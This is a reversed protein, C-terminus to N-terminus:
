GFRIYNQNGHKKMKANSQAGSRGFRLFSKQLLRKKTTYPSFYGRREKNKLLFIPYPYNQRGFRLFNNAPRKFRNAAESDLDMSMEMDSSPEESNLPQQDFTNTDSFNEQELSNEPVIKDDNAKGFPTRKSKRYDSDDPISVHFQSKELNINPLENGSSELM